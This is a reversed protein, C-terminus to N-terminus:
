AVAKVQGKVLLNCMAEAAEDSLFRALVEIDTDPASTDAVFLYHGFGDCFPTQDRNLEGEKKTIPGLCLTKSNSIQVEFYYDEM